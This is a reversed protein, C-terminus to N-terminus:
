NSRTKNLAPQQAAMRQSRTSRTVPLQSGSQAHQSLALPQIRSHAPIFYSPAPGYSHTPTHRPVAHAALTGRCHVALAVRSSRARHSTCAALTGRLDSLTSPIHQSSSLTSCTHGPHEQTHLEESHHSHTHQSHLARSTLASCSSYFAPVSRM